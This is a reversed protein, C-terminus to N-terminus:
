EYKTPKLNGKLYLPHSPHGQKTIKLCYPEIGNEKLLQVVAEGRKHLKGHVGWALVVIESVSAMEVLSTDNDPGVPDELEYLAKPDTSRYAFINGVYLKDFGWRIAYLACRRVTPDDKKEDATSPNLM